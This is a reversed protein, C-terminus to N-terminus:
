SPDYHLMLHRTRIKDIFSSAFSLDTERESKSYLVNLVVCPSFDFRIQMSHSTRARVYVDKYDPPIARHTVNVTLQPDMRRNKSVFLERASRVSPDRSDILPLHTCDVRFKRGQWGRAVSCWM